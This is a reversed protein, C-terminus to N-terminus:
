SHEERQRIRQRFGLAICLLGSTALLIGALYFWSAWAGTFYVPAIVRAFIVGVLALGGGLMFYTRPM